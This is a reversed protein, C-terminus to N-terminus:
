GSKHRIGMRQGVRAPMELSKQRAKLECINQYQEAPFPASARQQMDVHMALQESTAALEGSQAHFMEQYYHLRKSDHDLLQFTIRVPDDLVLENIYNVHVEMTFCSGQAQEVYSAGIGLGDYVHDVARDFMVHYFAMNLHGNYDIWANEVRQNPCSHPANWEPKLTNEESQTAYEVISYLVKVL